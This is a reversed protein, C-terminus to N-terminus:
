QLGGNANTTAQSPKDSATQMQTTVLSELRSLREQFAANQLQLQSKLGEMEQQQALMKQGQTELQQQQATVVSHQKQLENLLIPALLQYKIGSPQGEKDYVVMEPFVKAVEEAILGYQLSHAGDDYQPKYFFTVPRLELVKSTSVNMDAIQDKFRRSSGPNCPSQSVLKHNADICVPYNISLLNSSLYIGEIYTDTQTGFGSTVDGGIRITNNEAGSNPGRDGIYINNNGTTNNLGAFSGLFTNYAGTSNLYGSATGYAANYYGTNNNGGAGNGSFTNGNGSTTFVGAGEGIFTNGSGVDNLVGARDGVFTNESGTTNFVGAARGLFTNDNGFTNSTGARDGVFTNLGGTINATGALNGIFTNEGGETNTFGAKYGFFSNGDATNNFGAQFGVISNNSGHSGIFTGWGADFGVYVNANGDTNRFGAGAGIAVNEIGTLNHLCAASGYCSNQYGTNNTYGATYGTFTNQFGTTNFLGAQSGSFTNFSGTTATGASWGSFTNDTGVTPTVLGAGVGVFLNHLAFIPTPFSISLVPTEPLGIDYWTRTNIEGTVDLAKSPNTNGIGIFGTTPGAPSQYIVSNCIVNAPTLPGPSPVFRPIYFPAPNGATPCLFNFVPGVGGAPKISNATGNATGNAAGTSANTATSNNAGPSGSSTADPAAKVFASAPLGGLTEAEHAKFAYPVSVLLVRTPEPQGQVQVALYRQEQDSFLEAPVGETKTSGLMINYQGAADTTVNRTETWLAAGGDQQKYLAFTIGLTQSALVAGDADKLVGGYRILNPVSSTAPQQAVPNQASAALGCMLVLAILSLTVVSVSGKTKM